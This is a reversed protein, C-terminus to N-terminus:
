VATERSGTGPAKEERPEGVARGAWIGGLVRLQLWWSSRGCDLTHEFVREHVEPLAHWPIAPWAHHEAHFNSNWLLWRVVLPSRLSRTRKLVPGDKPMGRHELSQWAGQFVHSLLLAGLMWRTGTADFWAFVVLTLWSLAVLRAEWAIRRREGRPTWPAFADWRAVPMLSMRVMLMTKYRFHWFGFVVFLWQLSNVPLGGPDEPGSMEPDRTADNTHRHHEFHMARFASPAIGCPIGTMWVGVDNLMRTRFATRHACEHFPAFLPAIVQALLAMVPLAVIWSESFRVLLAGLLLVIGYHLTMRVISPFDRRERLRNLTANDLLPRFEFRDEM